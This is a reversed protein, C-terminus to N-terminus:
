AKMKQLASTSPSKRYDRAIPKKALKNKAQSYVVFVRHSVFV